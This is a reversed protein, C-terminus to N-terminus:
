FIYDLNYDVDGRARARERRRIDKRRILELRSIIRSPSFYGISLKIADGATCTLSETIERSGYYLRAFNLVVRNTGSHARKCWQFVNIGNGGTCFGKGCVCVCVYERWPVHMRIARKTARTNGRGFATEEDRRSVKEGSVGVVDRRTDDDPETERKRKAAGNWAESFWSSLISKVLDVGFSFLLSSTRRSLREGNIAMEYRGSTFLALRIHIFSM